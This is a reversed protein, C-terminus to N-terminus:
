YNNLYKELWLYISHRLDAPLQDWDNLPYDKSVPRDRANEIRERWSM